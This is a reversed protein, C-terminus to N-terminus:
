NIKKINESYTYIRPLEIKAIKGIGKKKELMEKEHQISIPYIRWCLLKKITQFVKDQKYNMWYLENAKKRYRKSGLKMFKTREKKEKKKRKKM